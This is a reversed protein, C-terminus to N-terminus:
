AVELRSFFDDSIVGKNKLVSQVTLVSVHFYRAADAQDEYDSPNASKLYAKLDEFPCLLSQAFARQFKQRSTKSDALPGIASQNSWISDGLARAAQFRRGEQRRSKLLVRDYSGNKLRLGYRLSQQSPDSFAKTPLGLLEGLRKNGLVGSVGICHRVNRAAVEAALWPAQDALYQFPQAARTAGELDCALGCTEAAEAESRLVKLADLGPAALAAEELGEQEYRTILGAMGSMLSEPAEDQDFGLAAEMRRWAAVEPDERERNLSELLARLVSRQSGYGNSEDGAILLFREVEREFDRSPVFSLSNTLFRVPGM